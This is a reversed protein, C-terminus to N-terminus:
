GSWSHDFAELEVSLGQHFVSLPHGPNLRTHVRSGPSFISTHPQMAHLVQGTVLKIKYINFAGLFFRQTIVGCGDERPTIEVDDARMAVEVRSGSPLRMKQPLFGLSTRIGNELIVGPLFDSDGMFQAVFRTASTHFIQEPSAIQEIRGANIVALRDGMELAEQQDHTVFLVSTNMGKLISRVQGRVERRLSADLSSFPEDMLVLEPNPALARALAVRQREGGSLEHPYRSEFQILGVLDLMSQITERQRDSSQGRLGFVINEAVTLHPFLALDQFVMGIGRKETPVSVNGDCIVRGNLRISGQDPRELGAIMRLTTTKGCGSPGVLALIEGHDLGFSIGHVAPQQANQYTKKLNEVDLTNM